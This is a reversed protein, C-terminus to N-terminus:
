GAPWWVACCFRWPRWAGSGARQYRPIMAEAAYVTFQDEEQRNM